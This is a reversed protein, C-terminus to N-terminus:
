PEGAIRIEGSGEVAVSKIDAGCFVILIAGKQVRGTIKETACISARATPELDIQATKLRFHEGSFGTKYASSLKLHNAKGKVIMRSLGELRVDNVENVSTALGIGMNTFIKATTDLDVTLTKDKVKARIHEVINDDSAMELQNELPGKHNVEVSLRLDSKLHVREFDDITIERKALIGTGKITGVTLDCGLPLLVSLLFVISFM